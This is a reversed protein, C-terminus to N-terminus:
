ARFKIQPYAARFVAANFYPRDRACLRPAFDVALDVRIRIEPILRFQFEVALFQGLM